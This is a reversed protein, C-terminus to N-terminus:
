AAGDRRDRLNYGAAAAVMGALAAAGGIAACALVGPSWGSAAIIAAALLVSLGGAIHTSAAERM